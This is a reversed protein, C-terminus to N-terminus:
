IIPVSNKVRQVMSLDERLSTKDKPASFCLTLAHDPLVSATSKTSQAPKSIPMKLVEQPAATVTKTSLLQSSTSHWLYPLYTLFNLNLGGGQTRRRVALYPLTAREDVM